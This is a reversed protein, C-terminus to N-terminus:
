RGPRPRRRRRGPDTAGRAPPGALSPLRRHHAPPRARPSRGNTRGAPNGPRPRRGRAQRELANWGDPRLATRRLDANAQEWNSLANWLPRSRHRATAKGLDDRKRELDTLLDRVRGMGGGAAFLVQGLRGQSRILDEGGSRLLATDLGFLEQFVTANAGDLLRRAEDPPIEPGDAAALTNGNGKRRILSRTTGQDVIDALLRMRETGFRFTM